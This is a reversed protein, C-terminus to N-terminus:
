SNRMLQLSYQSCANAGEPPRKREFGYELLLNGEARRIDQGWLWCQQHLLTRGRNMLERPLILATSQNV